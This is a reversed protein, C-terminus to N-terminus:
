EISRKSAAREAAALFVGPHQVVLYKLARHADTAGLNETSGVFREFLEHGVQNFTDAPIKRAKLAAELSSRLAQRWEELSFSYIQECAVIPALVGGCTGPTSM